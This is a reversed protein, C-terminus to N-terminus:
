YTTVDVATARSIERECLTEIQARFYLINDIKLQCKISM